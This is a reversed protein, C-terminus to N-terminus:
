PCYTLWQMVFVRLDKFDAVGDCNLDSNNYGGAPGTWRWDDAFDCFDLLNVTYDLNYNACTSCKNPDTFLMFSMDASKMTQDYLENWVWTGGAPERYGSVADDNFVHKHNTWGWQYNPDPPNLYVAQVSLWFVENYDPQNFWAPEPLRVSYRFVPENPEGHPHKDYGVLVEDYEADYSWIVENPHSFTDPNNVNPDPVDTWFKLLFYDPPVPPMFPGYTCAEYGYGIYSGWWVIATIPTRRLCRWDDAVLTQTLDPEATYELRMSNIDEYHTWNRIGTYLQEWKIYNPDTDLEFAMDFSELWVPDKIPAIQFPDSVAPGGAVPKALVNFTVADDMWHWPRTKWGWKYYPESVDNYEAVISIWYIDGETMLNFDDQWFIEEPELDVYYQYCVDNPHYGYYEDKGAVMWEVRAYDVAFEHLLIDPYSYGTPSSLASVNSWFAIWWKDPLVPPLKEPEEPWEWDYFSGWWHISTVPMSGLCHWDDAVIKWRCPDNDKSHSEEDWGCYTPSEDNPDIEIPPQSWKTHPELPKGPEIIKSILEFSLDWTEEQWEIPEFKDAPYSTNLEPMGLFGVADDQFFHERTEWGWPYCPDETLDGYLAMIGLWYINADNPQYWYDDYDLEQYFEFKALDITTIGPDWEWGYFSVSYSPCYNSWVIENPHSYTDPNAPNPDPVDTWITLLFAYPLQPPIAEQRWNLFSGWWRIATVPKNTDCLFDDAVMRPIRDHAEEDWGVYVNPESWPVPPQSWKLYSPEGEESIIKFSMDISNLDPPYTGYNHPPVYRLENWSTGDDNSWVADDNFHGDMIDRTKWGFETGPPSTNVDILVYADLWYIIPNCPDGQQVFQNSDDITIDYQWVSYDGPSVPQQQGGAPDWWWEPDILTSGYPTENIDSPGFDRSWLLTNPESWGMAGSPNDDHISLHIKKIVGKNDDHWSGWLVVKTIPDTSTCLFDDALVRSIGDDRDCRIDIGNETLDPKQEWKIETGLGLSLSPDGYLSFDVMNMWSSGSAWGTGFGSKCNVLAEGVTESNAAMKDFCYYGYSANDGNTPGIGTNWSGTSYWTIRTGSITGIAGNELLSYGLNGANEPYGNYCSVQVVFSPYSADLTSCDGSAFFAIDSTEFPHQTWGDPAGLYNDNQWVRRYAGTQNGHGWWTVFGYYNQWESKVNANTLAASCATLPYASGGAYCGSKEYLTYASFGVSAANSKIDDGWDDGFTDGWSYDDTGDYPFDDQPQWNSIAAPILVKQRWSLNGSAAGYNIAQQLISDLNPYNSDYVPIRGLKVECSKDAGGAGYDGIFEGYQGDVDLDWTNSLEAFYMDTPCKRYDLPDGVITSRPWVWKMPISTNVNWTDPHPDGILLVYQIGDGAWYAQLWSRINDARENCDTGTVYTTDSSAAGEVVTKVTYGATQKATIFATLNTTSNTVITSTTIIVYDAPVTGPAGPAEGGGAAGEGAAPYFTELDQPNAIKKLLGPVFKDANPLTPPTPSSLGIAEAAPLKQVTLTTQASRLVRVKKQVPNYAALWVKVEVIKWQRFLGVSVVEVPEAPFYADKGYITTDKGNIIVAPDKGCFDIVSDSAAPPAPAIEYEGALDEWNGSTLQAEVTELDADPPVLLSISKYPLMPDGPNGGQPFEDLNITVQKDPRTQVRAPKLQSISVTTAVGGTGDSSTQSSVNVSQPAAVLVTTLLLLLAIVIGALWKTKLGSTKM